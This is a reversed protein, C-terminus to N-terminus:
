KRYKFFLIFIVKEIVIVIATGLYKYKNNVLKAALNITVEYQHSFSFLLADSKTCQFFIPM